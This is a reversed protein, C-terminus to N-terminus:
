VQNGSKRIEHTELRRFPESPRPTGFNVTYAGMVRPETRYRGAVVGIGVERLVPNLLNKRHSM